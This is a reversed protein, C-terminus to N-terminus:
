QGLQIILIIYRLITEFVKMKSKGKKKAYDLQLPVETFSDTCRSAKLLIELQAAFGKEKIFDKGYVNVIKDLLKGSYMRYGCSYDSVGKIPWVIKLLLSACISLLKRHLGLGEQRGEKTYRSAIVVAYGSDIKEKMLPILSVPHTNDSDLVVISDTEKLEKIIHNFGTLLAKGLGLNFPHEITRIPASNKYQELVFPTKDTSGDNVIIIKYPFPLNLAKISDFVFPLNYEENYAALLIYLM